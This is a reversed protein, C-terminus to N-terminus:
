RSVVALIYTVQLTLMANPKFKSALFFFLIHMKEVNHTFPNFLDVLKQALPM